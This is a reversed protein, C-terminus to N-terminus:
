YLIIVVAHLFRYRSIDCTLQLYQKRSRLLLLCYWFCHVLLIIDFHLVHLHLPENPICKPPILSVHDGRAWSKTIMEEPWRGFYVGGDASKNMAERLAPVLAPINLYMDDDFHCYWRCILFHIYVCVIYMMVYLQCHIFMYLLPVM